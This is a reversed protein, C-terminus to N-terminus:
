EGWALEDIRELVDWDVLDRRETSFTVLREVAAGREQQEREIAEAGKIALDHVVKATPADDFYRGVRGLAEALAPDNTVPIRQFRTPM